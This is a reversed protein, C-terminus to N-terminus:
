WVDERGIAEVESAAPLEVSWRSGDRATASIQTGPLLGAVAQVLDTQADLVMRDARASSWRWAAYIVAAAAASVPDIM